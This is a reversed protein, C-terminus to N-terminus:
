NAMNWLVRLLAIQAMLIYAMLMFLMTYRHANSEGRSKLARVRQTSTSLHKSVERIIRKENIQWFQLFIETAIAFVTLVLSCAILYNLFKADYANAKALFYIAVYALSLYAISQWQQRKAFLLNEGAEQYIMLFEAHSLDDLSSEIHEFEDEDNEDIM